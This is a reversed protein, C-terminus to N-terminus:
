KEGEILCQWLGNILCCLMFALFAAEFADAWPLGPDINREQWQWYAHIDEMLFIDPRTAVTVQLLTM